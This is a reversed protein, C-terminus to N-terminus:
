WDKCLQLIHIKNKIDVGIDSTFVSKDCFRYIDEDTKTVGIKIYPMNLINLCGYLTSSEFLYTLIFIDNFSNLFEFPFLWNYVAQQEKTTELRILGHTRARRFLENYRSYMCEKDSPKITGDSGEVLYGDQIFLDIDGSPIDVEEFAEICEDIILTYNNEKIIDYLGETYGRLAQHTSTINHGSKVLELTHLVKSGKTETKRIPTQFNLEPCSEKIRHAEDLYPTVYIFKKDLNENMYTIAASSKGSGMIADCVKIKIKEEM